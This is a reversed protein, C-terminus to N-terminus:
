TKGLEILPIHHTYQYLSRCPIQPFLSIYTFFVFSFSWWLVFTSLIKTLSFPVLPPPPPLYHMALNLKDITPSTRHTVWFLEGLTLRTSIWLASVVRQAARFLPKDRERVPRILSWRQLASRFSTTPGSLFDIHMCPTERGRNLSISRM